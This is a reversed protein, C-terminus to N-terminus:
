QGRHNPPAAASSPDACVACHLAASALPPPPSAAVTAPQRWAWRSSRGTATACPSAGRRAAKFVYREEAGVGWGGQPGTTGVPKVWRWQIGRHDCTRGGPASSIDADGGGAKCGLTGLGPRARGSESAGAGRDSGLVREADGDTDTGGARRRTGYGPPETRESEIEGRRKTEPSSSRDYRGRVSEVAGAHSSGYRSRWNAVNLLHKAWREQRAYPASPNSIRFHMCPRGYRVCASALWRQTLPVGRPVPTLLSYIRM